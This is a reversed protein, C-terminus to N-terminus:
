VVEVGSGIRPVDGSGHVRRRVLLFINAIHDVDILGGGQRHHASDQRSDAALVAQVLGVAFPALKSIKQCSAM